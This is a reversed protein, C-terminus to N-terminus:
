SRSTSTPASRAPPRCTRSGRARRAVVQEIREVHLYGTTSWILNVIARYGEEYEGAEVAADIIASCRTPTPHSARRDLAPHLPQDPREGRRVSRRRPPRRRDGREPTSISQPQQKLMEIQSRRALARALQPSEPLGELARRGRHRVLAGRGLPRLALVGALAGRARGVAASRGDPGLRARRLRTARVREDLEAETMIWGPSRSRSSRGIPSRRDGARPRRRSQTRAAAFAGREYASVSAAYLLEFARRAVAPDDEGYAIAQGFHYAALEVTEGSRDPAVEQVWEGVRRHLERREARPLSAYAVDRTLAHKFSFERMGAM